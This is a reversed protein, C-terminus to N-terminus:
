FKGQLTIGLTRPRMVAVSPANGSVASTGSASLSTIGDSDGVNQAYVQLSWREFDFGARLDIAHYSPLRTQGAAPDFGSDREGVYRWSAGIFPTVSGMPAFTYDADISASFRPVYPLRDGEVAGVTLPDTDGTLEAEVWAGGAIISLGEAPRWTASFEIGKSAASSGNANVGTNNIVVLLQIDKWDIYFADIEFSLRGDDTSTKLGIEYNTLSDSGFTSPVGAPNGLPLVNPGGPRFGKSIRGYVMTNENVHWRPAVSWTFVSESSEGAADGAIGFQNAEQDNEAYRGGLGLDFSESFRYTVNAFVATENYESDLQLFGFGPLVQRLTADEDTYYLGVLWEWTQGTDSALRVEQTFKEQDLFGFVFLGFIGTADTAIEDEFTDLSTASTLTVGGFDYNVTGNYVRYRVDAFEPAARGQELEGFLPHLSVKGSPLATVDVSNGSDAELDQLMASVQLSFNENPEWLASIRGGITDVTNINEANRTPDDIYGGERWRYGSARIAFTDSLPVNVMGRLSWGSDGHATTDAGAQIKASFGTPDPQRTVFKLLGGLTSSGYLTGQPGRLVEVRQIDFTDINPTSILGNALASSSGYPTEDVYTGITTGTGGANIGRLILITHGPDSSVFAMGPVRNVFDDFSVLNLSELTDGGIATVAMPVTSLDEERKSATVVVTDVTTAATEAAIAPTGAGVGSAFTLLIASGLLRQRYARMTEGM